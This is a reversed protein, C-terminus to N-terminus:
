PLLVSNIVHITGNSAAIDTTTVTANDVMVTDGDITIAVEAGNVTAVSQGDLGVVDAALVNGPIVHYTLIGALDDSALLEGATLGLDDLTAAFADDTPAFVTFPGEGNLTDVLGAADAAALLTAFSGAEAAVEVITGTAASDTSEEAATATTAPTESATPESSSDSCAAGVLTLSLALAAGRAYFKM